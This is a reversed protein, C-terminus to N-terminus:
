SQGHDHIRQRLERVKYGYDCAYWLAEVFNLLMEAHLVMDNNILRIIKDKQGVLANDIEQENM